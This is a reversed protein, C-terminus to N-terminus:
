LAIVLLLKLKESHSYMLLILYGTVAYPWNVWSKKMSSVRSHAILICPRSVRMLTAHLEGCRTVIGSFMGAVFLQIDSYLTTASKILFTVSLHVLLLCFILKDIAYLYFRWVAHMGPEFVSIM